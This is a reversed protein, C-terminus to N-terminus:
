DEEVVVRLEAIDVSSTPILEISNTGPKIYDDLVKEYSLEDTSIHKRVGNIIYELKKEDDNVFRVEMTINYDEDLENTYNGDFFIDEDVEFYYVPYIMEELRTTVSVRDILYSGESVIFELENKDVMAEDKDLAIVQYVGCDGLGSYAEEGNFYIKLTGADALSCDPDFRFKIEEINRYETESLYFFQRSRSNTLDLVQGIISLDTLEYRNTRWFAFGPSSVRFTLLNEDDLYDQPLMIPNPTGKAIKGNFIEYGNLFVELNGLSEKVNFSLAMDTTLRKKIEFSLNFEKTGSLGKQVYISKITKINTGVNEANIRFSPLDHERYDFKLYDLRGVREKLLLPDYDIDDDDSGSTYNEEGLLLAREEPPLLLIYLVMIVGILILLVAASGAAKGKKNYM